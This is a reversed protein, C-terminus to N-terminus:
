YGGIVFKDPTEDDPDIAAQSSKFFVVEHEPEVPKPPLKDPQIVPPLSHMVAIQPEPLATKVAPFGHNLKIVSFSVNDQDPDALREIAKLLHGVIEASKRKRYKFLIKQIEANELYQLGDSSVVVIDGVELM